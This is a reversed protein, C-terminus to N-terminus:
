SISEGSAVVRANPMSYIQSTKEGDDANILAGSVRVLMEQKTDFPNRKSGRKPQPLLEKYFKEHCELLELHWLAERDPCASLDVIKHVEIFLVSDECFRGTVLIYTGPSWSMAQHDKKLFLDIVGSGDDMLITSDQLSSVVVGQLWVRQFRMQGLMAYGDGTHVAAQLEAILLKPARLKM